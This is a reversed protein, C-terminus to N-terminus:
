LVEEDMLSGGYATGGKGISDSMSDTEKLRLRKYEVLEEPSEPGHQIKNNLVFIWVAFLLSYIIGFMIISGLVQDATVSESLGDATRLGMMEVGDQVSPYVIWPQRGVEATVWGAQNATMACVPMVVVAWLLWRQQGYTGRFWSWCALAAVCIMLTGMGVMLHFTQFPLWIPPRDAEPIQDMGPVPKHPDNYLM